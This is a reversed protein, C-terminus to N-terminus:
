AGKRCCGADPFFTCLCTLICSALSDPLGPHCVYCEWIWGYDHINKQCHVHTRLRENLVAIYVHFPSLSSFLHLPLPNHLLMSIEMYAHSRYTAIQEPMGQLLWGGQANRQSTQLQLYNIQAAAQSRDYRAQPAVHCTGKGHRLPLPGEHASHIPCQNAKGRAKSVTGGWIGALHVQRVRPLNYSSPPLTPIM